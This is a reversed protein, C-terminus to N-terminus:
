PCQEAWASWTLTGSRRLGWLLPEETREADKSAPEQQFGINLACFRRLVLIPHLRSDKWGVYM